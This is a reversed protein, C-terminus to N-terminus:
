SSVGTTVGGVITGTSGVEADEIAVGADELEAEGPTVGGSFDELM